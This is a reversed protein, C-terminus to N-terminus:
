NRSAAMSALLEKRQQPALCDLLSSVFVPRDAADIHKLTICRAVIDHVHGSGGCLVCDTHDTGCAPCTVPATLSERYTYPQGAYNRLSLPSCHKRPASSLSRTLELARVKKGSCRRRCAKSDLLRRAEETHVSFVYDGALNFVQVKTAFQM